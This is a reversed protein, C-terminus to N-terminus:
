DETYFEKFSDDMCYFFESAEWFNGCEDIVFMESEDEVYKRLYSFEKSDSIYSDKFPGDYDDSKCINLVRYKM